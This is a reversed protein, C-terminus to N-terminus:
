TSLLRAKQKTSRAIGRWMLTLPTDRPASTSLWTAPACVHGSRTYRVHLNELSLAERLSIEKGYTTAFTTKIEAAVKQKVQMTREQGVIGCTPM